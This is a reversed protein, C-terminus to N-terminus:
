ADRLDAREGDNLVSLEWISGFCNVSVKSESGFHLWQDASVIGSASDNLMPTQRAVPKCLRKMAVEGCLAIYHKGKLNWCGRKETVDRLLQKSRRRTKRERCTDTEYCKKIGM